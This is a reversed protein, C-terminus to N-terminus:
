RQSYNFSTEVDRCVKFSVGSPLSLCVRKDCWECLYACWYNGCPYPVNTCADYWQIGADNCRRNDDNGLSFNVKARGSFNWGQRDNYGGSLAVSAEAKGEVYPGFFKGAVRIGARVNASAGVNLGAYFGFNNNSFKYSFEANANAWYAYGFGFEGIGLGINYGGEKRPVTVDARINIGNFYEGRDDLAFGTIRAWIDRVEPMENRRATIGLALLANARGFVPVDLNANCGFFLMSPKAYLVAIIKLKGVGKMVAMEGKYDVILRTRCFDLTATALGWDAENIRIGLAGKIVPKVGCENADFLVELKVRDFHTVKKDVGTPTMAGTLFIKYIKGKFDFDFGGGLQTWTVSGMPIAVAANISMGLEIDMANPGVRFYKFGAGFKRTAVELEGSGEFGQRVDTYVTKARVEAKLGSTELLFQFENVRVQVGGANDVVLVSAYSKCTMGKTDINVGGAIGIGWTIKSEAFPVELDTGLEGMSENKATNAGNVAMNSGTLTNSMAESATSVFKGSSTAANAKETKDREMLKNLEDFSMKVGRNYIFREISVSVPGLKLSLNAKVAVMMEGTSRYVFRQVELPFLTVIPNSKDKTADASKYDLQASCDIEFYKRSPVYSFEIGKPTTAVISKMKYGDAPLFFKGGVKLGDSAAIVFLKDIVWDNKPDDTSAIRGGIGFGKFNDYILLKTAIARWSGMAVSLSNRDSIKFSLEKLELNKGFTFKEIAVTDKTWKFRQIPPLWLKGTFEIGTEGVVCKERNFLFTLFGTQFPYFKKSYEALEKKSADSLLLVQKYNDDFVMKFKANGQIASYSPINSFAVRFKSDATAKGAMDPAIFELTTMPLANFSFGGADQIKDINLRMRDGGLLGLTQEAVIRKLSLGVRSDIITPAYGFATLELEVEKFIIDKAPVGDGEEDVDVTIDKFTLFKAGASKFVGKTPLQITGSVLVTKDGLKEMTEANVVYGLITKLEPLTTDREVLEFDQSRNNILTTALSAKNFNKASALLRLERDYPVYLSYTGNKDTTTSYPLDQVEVKADAVADKVGKKIVKGKLLVAKELALTITKLEGPTVTVEGSQALYVSAGEAQVVKYALVEAQGTYDWGKGGTDGARGNALEIRAVVPTDNLTAVFRILGQQNRVTITGADTMGALLENPLCLRSFVASLTEDAYGMAGPSLTAEGSASLLEKVSQYNGLTQAWSRSNEDPNRDNWTFRSATFTGSKEEFGSAAVTLGIQTGYAKAIFFGYENARIIQGTAQVKVMAGGVPKGYQDKVIGAVLSVTSRITIDKEIVESGTFTVTEAQPVPSLTNDTADVTIQAGKKLMPIEAITYQGNKDSTVTKSFGVMTGSLPSAMDSGRVTVMIRVGERASFSPNKTGVKGTLTISSKYTYNRKIYILPKNGEQGAQANVANLPVYMPSKNRALVQVVLQDGGTTNYFIRRAAQSSTVTAVSVYTQGNYTVDERSGSGEQKLYTLRDVIEKRRLVRLTLEEKPIGSAIVQTALRFTQAVLVNQGLDYETQGRQIAVTRTSSTFDETLSARVVLSTVGQLVDPNFGKIEYNGDKDTKATGILRGNATISVQANELSNAVSSKEAPAEVQRTTERWAQAPTQVVWASRATDPELETKKFTWIVRGKMLKAINDPPPPTTSNRVLSQVRTINMMSSWSNGNGYVFFGVQSYGDNTFSTQGESGMKAVARVRFGYLRGSTLPPNAPGYLYTTGLTRTTFYPPQAFFLNQPNANFGQPLIIETITLEYETANVQSHRPVWQFLVQQAAMAPVVQNNTPLVLLPPDSRQIWAYNSCATASLQQNTQFDFVTFCFRYLGEALAKGYQAPNIQLNEPRFYTALDTGSVQIMSGPLLNIPPAAVNDAGIIRTGPGEIYIKLRVQRNALQLDKLLLTVFLQESAPNTLDALYNTYPARAIAQVQVPYNQAQGSLGALLLVILQFFHLLRRM